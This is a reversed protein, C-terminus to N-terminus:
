IRWVEGTVWGYINVKGKHCLKFLEKKMYVSELSNVEQYRLLLFISVIDLYALILIPLKKLINNKM